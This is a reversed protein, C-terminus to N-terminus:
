LKRGLHYLCWSLINPDKALGQLFIVIFPFKTCVVCM